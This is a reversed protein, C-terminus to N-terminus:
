ASGGGRARRARDLAEARELSRLLLAAVLRGYGQITEAPSRILEPWAGRGPRRAERARLMSRLNRTIAALAALSAALVEALRAPLGLARAGRVVGAPGLWAAMASGAAIASLARAALALVLAPRRQPAALLGAPLAMVAVLPVLLAVRALIRTLSWGAARLLAVAVAFTTGWVLWAPAPVREGRLGAPILASIVVAALGAALVPGPRSATRM